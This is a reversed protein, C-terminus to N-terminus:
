KKKWILEGSVSSVYQAQELLYDACIQIPIYSNRLGNYSHYTVLAPYNDEPYNTGTIEGIRLIKYVYISDAIGNKFYQISSDKNIKMTLNYGETQPTLYIIGDTRTVRKEELWEWTGQIFLRASDINRTLDNCPKVPVYPQNIKDNKCSFFILSVLFTAATLLALHKM